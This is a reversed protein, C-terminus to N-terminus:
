SFEDVPPDIEGGLEELELKLQTGRDTFGGFLSSRCALVQCQATEQVFRSTTGTVIPTSSTSLRPPPGIVSATAADRLTGTWPFTM